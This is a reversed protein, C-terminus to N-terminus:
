YLRCAQGSVTFIAKANGRKIADALQHNSSWFEKLRAKDRSLRDLEDTIDHISILINRLGWFIVGAGLVAAVEALKATWFGGPEVGLVALVGFAVLGVAVYRILYVSSKITDQM